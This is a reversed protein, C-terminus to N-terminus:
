ALEGIPWEMGNLIDTYEEKMMNCAEDLKSEANFQSQGSCFDDALEYVIKEIPSSKYKGIDLLGVAYYITFGAPTLRNCQYTHCIEHFYSKECDRNSEKIFIFNRYAVGSFSISEYDRLGNIRDLADGLIDRLPLRPVEKKIVVRVNKITSESFHGTLNPFATTDVATSEARSNDILKTNWQEIQDLIPKTFLKFKQSDYIKPM